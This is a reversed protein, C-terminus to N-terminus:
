CENQKGLVHDPSPLGFRFKRTDHNIAEKAILPLPYKVSPDLLTRPAKEKESGSVGSRCFCLFGM